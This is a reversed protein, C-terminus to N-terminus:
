EYIDEPEYVRVKLILEGSRSEARLDGVELYSSGAAEELIATIRSIESEGLALRAAEGGISERSAGRSAVKKRGLVASGVQIDGRLIRQANRLSASIGLRDGMAKLTRADDTQIIRNYLLTALIHTPSAYHINPQVSATPDAELFSQLVARLNSRSNRTASQLSREPLSRTDFKAQISTPRSISFINSYLAANRIHYLSLGAGHPPATPDEPVISPNLHRSTVGPEFILDKYAEPIGGGDDIVTVIRYRRKHLTSAVYINHAGADRSNRVLELVADEVSSIRSPSRRAGEQGTLRAFGSGLDRYPGEM